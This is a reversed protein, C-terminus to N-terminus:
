PTAWPRRAPECSRGRTPDRCVAGALVLGTRRAALPCAALPRPVVGVPHVTSAPGQGSSWTRRLVKKCSGGSGEVQWVHARLRGLLPLGASGSRVALGAESGATGQPGPLPRRRYGAGRRSSVAAEGVPRGASRRFGTVPLCLASKVDPTIHGDCFRDRKSRLGGAQSVGLEGSLCVSFLLRFSLRLSRSPSLCGPKRLFEPLVPCQGRCPLRGHSVCCCGWISRRDRGLGSRPDM